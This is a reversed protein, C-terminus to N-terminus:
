IEFASTFHVLGATIIIVIAIGCLYQFVQAGWYDTVNGNEDKCNRGRFMLAFVVLTVASLLLLPQFLFTSIVSGM